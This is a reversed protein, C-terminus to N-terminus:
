NTKSIDQLTKEKWQLQEKGKKATIEDNWREQNLFTAPFPQFQKDTFQKKWEPLIEIIKMQTEESLKGWKKICGKKDGIKKDYLNWFIDFEINIEKGEKEKKVNKNITDAGQPKMTAKTDTKTHSEYNAPTQYIDYNCVTLVLGRTTKMTTIMDHKRLWKMAMECQWKSYKEKRFGVMWHLGEQIDAYSRVTSGRKINGNNSHNAEKILWDWIERVHPPAISIESDQIKRAKIYFGGHIM